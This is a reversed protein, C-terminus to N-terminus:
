MRCLLFVTYPAVRLSPSSAYKDPLVPVHVSLTIRLGVRAMYSYMTNGQIARLAMRQVSHIRGVNRVHVNYMHGIHIYVHVYVHVHIIIIYTGSQRWHGGHKGAGPHLVHASCLQQGSTEGAPQEHDARGPAPPGKGSHM